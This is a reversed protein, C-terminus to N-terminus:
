SNSALVPYFRQGNAAMALLEVPVNWRPGIDNGLRQCDAVFQPIGLRDIYSLAGGTHSPFGGAFISGVDVEERVPAVSEFHARAAELAAAALLRKRVTLPEPQVAGTDFLTKLIPSLHKAGDLPYDYFGAGSKRGLRGMDVLRQVVADAKRRPHDQGLDRESQVRVSNILTLSIEDAVALPGTAFGARLACNEILAPAVGEVLMDIGESVFAGFVRTGFFGRGDNLVISMKGIAKVFDMALAVAADSTLAGRIIEVLPMKEVPSVFHMGVFMTPARCATALGTIPLTSTNSAIVADAPLADQAHRIVDAKIDRDEFVAEIALQATALKSYDACPLIRQLLAEMEDTTTRGQRIQRELIARGYAKGRQAAEITTDVLVVEIGARAAEFAIGGGMMGAGIVAIRTLSSKPINIPRRKARRSDNASYFLTRVMDQAVTEGLVLSLHQRSEIELGTDIDGQCGAYVAHMLAPIQPHNGQSRVMALANAVAFPPLGQQGHVGGGPISFSPRDWPQTSLDTQSLWAHARDLLSEPPTVEDVLGKALAELPPMRVGEIMLKLGATLGILRPVRQTGGAAPIMGLQSEPLGIRIRDDLAVFRRHAALAIEFGGGLASGNIACAVPKGGTELKRLLKSLRRWEALLAQPSETAYRMRTVMNLDAGALFDGQRSSTILIARVAADSLAMGIAEELDAVSQADLTNVPREPMSFSVVAHGQPTIQYDLTRM